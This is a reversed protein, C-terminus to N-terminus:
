NYHLFLVSLCQNNLLMRGIHFAGFQNIKNNSIDLFKLKRNDELAHCLHEVGKNGLNCYDLILYLLSYRVTPNENNLIENCLLKMTKREPDSCILPNKTLDLTELGFPINQIILEGTKQSINTGTLNLKLLQDSM